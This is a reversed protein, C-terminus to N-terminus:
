LKKTHERLHELEARVREIAEKCQQVPPCVHIRALIMTRIEDTNRQFVRSLENAAQEIRKRNTQSVSLSEYNM